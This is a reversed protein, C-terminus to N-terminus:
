LQVFRRQTLVDQRLEEYERRLQELREAKARWVSARHTDPFSRSIQKGDVYARAEFKGPVRERVAFVGLKNRRAPQPSPTGALGWFVEAPM